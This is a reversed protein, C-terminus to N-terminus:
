CACATNMAVMMAAWGANWIMGVVRQRLVCVDAEGGPEARVGGGVRYQGVVTVVVVVAVSSWGWFRVVVCSKLWEVM